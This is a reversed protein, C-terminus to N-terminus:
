PKVGDDTSEAADRRPALQPLGPPTLCIKPEGPVVAVKVTDADPPVRRAVQGDVRPHGPRGPPRERADARERVISHERGVLASILLGQVDGQGGITVDSSM